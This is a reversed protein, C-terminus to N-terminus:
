QIQVGKRFEQNIFLKGNIDWVKKYGNRLDNKYESEEWLEGGRYYIKHIGQQRGKQDITYEHRWGYKDFESILQTELIEDVILDSVNQFVVKCISCVEQNRLKQFCTRHIRNSGKCKCIDTCFLNDQTEEGYCIYCKLESSM